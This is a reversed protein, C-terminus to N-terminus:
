LGLLGARGLQPPAFGRPQLALRRRKSLIGAASVQPVTAATKTVNGTTRVPPLDFGKPKPLLVSSALGGVVGGIGGGVVGATTAGAFTAAAGETALGGGIAGGVGGGIAGFAAGKVPDGGTAVATGAGIAAGILIPTVIPDDSESM